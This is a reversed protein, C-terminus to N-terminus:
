LYDLGTLRVSAEWLRRADHPDRARRESRLKVPAGWLQGLGRPGIYDNGVVDRHTAAMLTPWSGATADQAMVASAGGYLRGMWPQGDLEPGRQVLNTDAWGPHCAVAMRRGGVAEFRRQLEYTFLLNALKTMCYQLWREYFREGMLDNWRMFGFRHGHSSVVVVRADPALRDLLQGTLAFHGLHNTALQLEFGDASVRRPVAMIGANLILRDIRAHPFSEAFSRVSALSSVDVLQLEVTAHPVQDRIRVVADNGRTADRCALVVHAGRAALARAAEWGIGSNAGTIVVLQGTQDPINAETWTM